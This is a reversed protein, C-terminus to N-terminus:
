IIYEDPLAFKKLRYKKSLFSYCLNRFGETNMSFYIDLEPQLGPYEYFERLIKKVYQAVIKPADLVKVKNWFFDKFDEHLFPYHTCAPILCDISDFLPNKLYHRIVERSVTTGAFGEEVLPALLPTAMARVVLDPRQQKLLQQYVGSQITTRTAILGVCHTQIDQTLYEVIPSVVDVIPVEAGAEERAASAATASATNCAIVIIQAGESVLFRVIRRTYKQILDPSKEGYPMHATDGFYLLKGEQPLINQLAKAVTLGGVGSDFIGIVPLPNM